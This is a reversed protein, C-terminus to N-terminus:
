KIKKSLYAKQLKYNDLLPWVEIANTTFIAVRESNATVLVGQAVTTANSSSIDILYVCRSFNHPKEPKIECGHKRFNEITEHAYEKGRQFPLIVISGAVVLVVLPIFCLAGLEFVAEGCCIWQWQTLGYISRGQNEKTIPNAFVDVGKGKLRLYSIFTGFLITITFGFFVLMWWWKTVFFGLLQVGVYWSEAIVDGFGRSLLSPDLGFGLTNGLHYSYGALLLCPAVLGIIVAIIQSYKQLNDM